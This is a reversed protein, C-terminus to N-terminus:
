CGLAHLQLFCVVVLKLVEAQELFNLSHQGVTGRVLFAMKTSILSLFSQLKNSVQWVRKNM